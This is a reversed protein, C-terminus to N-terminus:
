EGRAKALAADIRGLQDIHGTYGEDILAQITGRAEELAAYLDPAAAILNANARAEPSTSYHKPWACSSDGDEDLSALCSQTGEDYVVIEGVGHDTSAWPGPTWKTEGSM